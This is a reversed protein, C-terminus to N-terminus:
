NYRFSSALYEIGDENIMQLVKTREVGLAKVRENANRGTVVFLKEKRVGHDLYILNIGSVANKRKAAM